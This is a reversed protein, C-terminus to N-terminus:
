IAPWWWRNVGVRVLCWTSIQDLCYDGPKPLCLV